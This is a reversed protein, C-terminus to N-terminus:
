LGTTNGQVTNGGTDGGSTEGLVPQSSNGTNETPAEAAPSDTDSAEDSVAEMPAANGAAELASADNGLQEFMVNSDAQTAAAENTENAGGCSALLLVTSAIGAFKFTHFNSHRM